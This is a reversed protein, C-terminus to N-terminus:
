IDIEVYKYNAGGFDFMDERIALQYNSSTGIPIEFSVHGEKTLGPNISGPFDSNFLETEYQRNKDDILIFMGDTIIVPSSGINEVKFNIVLESAGDKLENVKTSEVLYTINSFVIPDGVSYSAIASAEQKDESSTPLNFLFSFAFAIAVAILICGGIGFVNEKYRQKKESATEQETPDTNKLESTM